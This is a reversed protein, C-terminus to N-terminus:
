LSRTGEGDIKVIWGGVQLENVIALCKDFEDEGKEQGEAELEVVLRGAGATPAERAVGMVGTDPEATQGNPTNLAGSALGYEGHQRMEDQTITLHSGVRSSIGQQGSM